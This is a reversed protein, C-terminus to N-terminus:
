FIVRLGATLTTGSFWEQKATSYEASGIIQWNPFIAIGFDAGADVGFIHKNESLQKNYESDSDAGSIGFLLSAGIHPSLTFMRAFFFDKALGVNFMFSSSKRLENGKKDLPYCKVGDITTAKIDSTPIMVFAMYMKIADLYETNFKETWHWPSTYDLRLKYATGALVSIGMNFEIPTLVLNMGEELKGGHIQHFTTTSSNGTAITENQAIRSSAVVVGKRKLRVKGTTDAENEYVFYRQNVTVGEKTGIKARIPSTAYIPTKVKFDDSEKSLRTANQVLKNTNKNTRKTLAFNTKEIIKKALYAFTGDAGTKAPIDAYIVSENKVPIKMQDIANPNNWQEFFETEFEPTWDIKYLYIDYDAELMTVTKNNRQEQTEKVDYIDYILIYSHDILVKGADKLLEKGRRAANATNVDKDTANYLGREQVVKMSYENHEADWPFWDKLVIKSIESEVLSNLRRKLQEASEPQVKKVMVSTTQNIRHPERKSAKEYSGRLVNNVVVNEDFQKPVGQLKLAEILKTSNREGRDIYLVSLSPRVYQLVPSNQQAVVEKDNSQAYGQLYLLTTFATFLWTKQFIKM